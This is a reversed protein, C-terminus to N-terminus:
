HGTGSLSQPANPGAPKTGGSQYAGQDWAALTPRPLATRVPCGTVAHATPDFTCAYTTDSQCAAAAAPMGALSLASCLPQENTGKGTTPSNTSAPSYGYAGAATYGNSTAMSHTTLRETSFTSNAFPCSPYASSADDIYYNNAAQVPHAYVQPCVSDLVPANQAQEFTNNFIVLNGQNGSNSNQGVDIYNGGITNTDYIVNNFWYSTSGVAPEPWILVQTRGDPSLHRIVNNYFANTGPADSVSEWVNGHSVGDGPDYWNEILNDHWTHPLRVVIQSANRFVSYSVDWADAYFVGGGAPDSDAGDVYIFKYINGPPATAGGRFLFIDFCSGGAACNFQTHSWGHYYLNEFTLGSSFGYDFVIDFDNLANDSSCMGLVEFNDITIGTQTALNMIQNKPGSQYTCSALTTSTTLPNDANLIPRAWSAGAFWTKDVGVYINNASAGSWIWVWTGGTYPAAANNGFHWTDGGRFIFQDGAVPTHGACTGTCNPMGPAHLWPATKSTGSNSDSGNAAIYYTGASASGAYFLCAVFIAIGLFKAM